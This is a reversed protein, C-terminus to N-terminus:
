SAASFEGCDVTSGKQNGLKAAQMSREKRDISRAQMSIVQVQVVPWM